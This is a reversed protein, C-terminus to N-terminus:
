HSRSAHDCQAAARETPTPGVFWTTMRLVWRFFSVARERKATVWYWTLCMLVFLGLLVPHPVDLRMAQGVAVGCMATVLSLVGATRTPGFGADRMLHHMHNRDAIFPSKRVRTRRVMLVLCDMVPIMVFWLALVPNVPHAPSQTLRFAFWAIVFGLFASGANGMFIKARPRWPSRLNFSLFAAVVGAMLLARDAVELNGSYVGAATLLVLATLVLSGALGDAGDIMNIANILGVTAFVTFPVSLWGLSLEALGFVPGIQEVKVGGVYIMILAAAVQAPIRLKWSLDYLDDLLGVVVLLTGASMFAITHADMPIFSSFGLVLVGVLMALGGTIPTPHAHDKRGKPFDLLNM